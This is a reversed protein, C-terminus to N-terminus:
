STELIDPKLSQSGITSFTQPFILLVSRPQSFSYGWAQNLIHQPHSSDPACGSMWTWLAIARLLSFLHPGPPQSEGVRIDDLRSPECDGLSVLSLLSAPCPFFGRFCWNLPTFLLGEFHSPFFPASSSDYSSSLTISVTDTFGQVVREWPAM